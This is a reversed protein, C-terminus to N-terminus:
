GKKGNGKMEALRQKAVEAWRSTGHDKVVKELLKAAQDPQKMEAFVRSAECLALASLEPYDYTFPVVLLANAAEAHRKQELRCLGIQLQARAAVEAATGATVQTYANVAADYNKQNQWAWGIAYRAEHLWPNQPFRQVLIECAQRSQDWQAPSAQAFAHGLRLLARDSIGPLNQLPPQDRFPTLYQIAKAAGGAAAPEGLLCEAARYRAEAAFLSKANQVIGDFAAFASKFDGKVFQCAGLRLRLREALEPPADKELAQNLLRIAPDLENRQAHMEALELRADLDLRAGPDLRAGLTLQPLEGAAIMAQYLDRARQEAPQVPIAKLPIEPPRIAAVAQTGQAQKLREDQLKKLGEGQLRQRTQEIEHQGLTRNCWASEYIMRLHNESGKAKQNQQNAENDFFQATDRLQKLGEQFAANAATIEAQKLGPKALTKTATDLKAFAEEKRCQGARWNAEPVEPRNAFDKAISEFIGRADALKGTDKVALGHHYRVLIAVDHRAPNERLKPEHTARCQELIKVAEAARNQSRHLSSLRVIALPAVPAQKLPDNQFRNLENIAGGIDGQAAIVKAREFVANPMLAHQPFQQMLREYIQRATQLSQNKAQPEAFLEALRQHCHGLRLLADPAQPGTGATALFAELLKIAENLENQVRAAAIADNAETPLLRLICDAHLYPVNAMEGSREATPITALIGAAKEYEGLRYHSQALGHKALSIHPFEPYKEIFQQYRKIAEGFLRKLEQDRNPLDPRNVAAVAALYANEAFRFTVVAVLPHKGHQQFFRQCLDDSEKYM